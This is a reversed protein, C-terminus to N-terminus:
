KTFSWLFDIMKIATVACETGKNGLTGGSREEAQKMDETTLLGFIVPRDSETNLRTIGETVGQCVYDFHPTEGRVVCGLVIVADVATQKLLQAAGYTLEFSGPVTRLIIQEESVGHQKLTEIAGKMMAGTINFNWESVVIGVKMDHADPVSNFDYDSLHHYITAM